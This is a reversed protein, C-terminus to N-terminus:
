ARPESPHPSRPKPPAAQPHGVRRVHEAGLALAVLLWIAALPSVGLAIVGAGVTLAGYSIAGIADGSRYVFTDIIPKSGYKEQQSTVTFLLERSPKALAYSLGRRMVQFAFFTWLVTTSALATEGGTEIVTGLAVLGALTLIPLAALAWGVGLWRIIRGTLFLQVFLTLGQAVLDILAFFRTRDERTDFQAEIISAQLFYVFTSLVTFLLVYLSIKLLYPSRILLVIGALTSRGPEAGAHMPRPAHGPSAHDADADRLVLWALVGAGVLGYSALVLLLPRPLADVWHNTTFSGAIAGLTGGVALFGFLRSGRARGWVDAMVAWFVSVAFLNLVSLWVYFIRGILRHESEPTTAFLAAFILTNIAFFVYTTPVFRNRKSGAVFAAFIPNVLLMALMTALFLMPLQEVGGEIGAAERMPRMIFYSYLVLFFFSACLLAPRLEQREAGVLRAIYGAIASRPRHDPPESRSQDGM